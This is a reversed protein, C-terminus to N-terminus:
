ELYKGTVIQAYELMTLLGAFDGYAVTEDDDDRITIQKVNGDKTKIAFNLKARFLENADALKIFERCAEELTGVIKGGGVQISTVRTVEM